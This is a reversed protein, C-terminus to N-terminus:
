KADENPFAAVVDTCRKTERDLRELPNTAPMNKAPAEILPKVIRSTIDDQRSGPPRSLPLRYAGSMRHAALEAGDV